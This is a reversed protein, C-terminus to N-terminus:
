PSAVALVASEEERARVGRDGTGIGAGSAGGVEGLAKMHVGKQM